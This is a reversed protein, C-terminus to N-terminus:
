LTKECSVRTATPQVNLRDEGPACRRAVLICCINSITYLGIIPPVAQQRAHVNPLLDTEVHPPDPTLFVPRLFLKSESGAQM